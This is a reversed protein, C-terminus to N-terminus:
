WRWGKSHERSEDWAANRPNLMRTGCRVCAASTVHTGVVVPQVHESGCNRCAASADYYAMAGLEAEVHERYERHALDAAESFDSTSFEAGQWGCECRGQWFCEKGRDTDRHGCGDISRHVSM